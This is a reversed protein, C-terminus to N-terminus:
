TWPLVTFPPAVLTATGTRMWTDLTGAVLDIAAQRTPPRANRLLVVLGPGAAPPVAVYAPLMGVGVALAFATLADDVASLSSATFAAVLQGELAAAAAGVTTSPPVIGAAWGEIAQRWAAACGEITTPYDAEGAGPLGTQLASILLPM